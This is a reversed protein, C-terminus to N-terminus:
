HQIGGLLRKWGVFGSTVGRAPCPGRWCIECIFGVNTDALELGHKRTLNAVMQAM